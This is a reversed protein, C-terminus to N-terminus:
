NCVNLAIRFRVVEMWGEGQLRLADATVSYQNSNVIGPGTWTRNQVDGFLSALTDIIAAKVLDFEDPPQSQEDSLFVDIGMTVIGSFTTRKVDNTAVASAIFLTMAPFNRRGARLISEPTIQARFYNGSSAGSVREFDIQRDFSVGYSGAIESSLPNYGVSPDALRAHVADLVQKTVPFPRAM